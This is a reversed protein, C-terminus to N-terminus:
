PIFIYGIPPQGLSLEEHNLFNLWIEAILRDANPNGQIFDMSHRGITFNSMYFSIDLTIDFKQVDQPEIAPVDLFDTTVFVSLEGYKTTCSKESDTIYRCNAISDDDIRLETELSYKTAKVGGGNFVRATAHCILNSYNQSQKDEPMECDMEKLTYPLSLRPNHEYDVAEKSVNFSLWATILAVFSIVIPIVKILIDVIKNDSMDSM